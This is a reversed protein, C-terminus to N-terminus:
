ESDVVSPIERVAIVASYDARRNHVLLVEASGQKAIVQSAPSTRLVVRVTRGDPREATATSYSRSLWHGRLTSVIGTLLPGNRFGWVTLLFGYLWVGLLAVGAPVIFPSGLLVGLAIVGAGIVWITPPKWDRIDGKLAYIFAGRRPPHVEVLFQFCSPEVIVWEAPTILTKKGGDQSRM